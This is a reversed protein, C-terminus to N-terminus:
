HLLKSTIRYDDLDDFLDEEEEISRLQSDTPYISDSEDEADM